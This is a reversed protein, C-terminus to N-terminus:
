PLPKMILCLPKRRKEYRESCSTSSRMRWTTSPTWVNRATSGYPPSGFPIPRLRTRGATAAKWWTPTAPKRTASTLHGTISHIRSKADDTLPRLAGKIQGKTRESGMLRELKAAARALDDDLGDLASLNFNISM